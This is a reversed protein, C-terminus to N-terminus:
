IVCSSSFYADTIYEFSFQTLIKHCSIMNMMSVTNLNHGEKGKLFRVALGNPLSSGTCFSQM